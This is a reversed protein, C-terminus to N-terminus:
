AAGLPVAPLLSAAVRSHDASRVSRWRAQKDASDALKVSARERRTQLREGSRGLKDRRVKECSDALETLPEGQCDSSRGRVDV